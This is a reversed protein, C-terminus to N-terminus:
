GAGLSEGIAQLVVDSRMLASHEAVVPVEVSAGGFTDLASEVPVTGDGSYASYLISDKLHEGEGYPGRCALGTGYIRTWRVDEPLRKRDEIAAAAAALHAPVIPISASQYSAANWLDPAGDKTKASIVKPSPILGYVTPFSCLVKAILQGQTQAIVASLGDAILGAARIVDSSANMADPANFSGGFPTGVTVLDTVVTGCLDPHARLVKSAFLGGMSHAVIVVKLGQNGYGRILSALGGASTNFPRRWDYGPDSFHEFRDIAWRMFQYYPWELSGGHWVNKGSNETLDPNLELKRFHRYPFTRWDLWLLDKGYIWGDTWLRSGAIGPLFILAKQVKAV